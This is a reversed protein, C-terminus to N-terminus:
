EQKSPTEPLSPERQPYKSPIPAIDQGNRKHELISVEKECYLDSEDILASKGKRPIRIRGRRVKGAENERSWEDLDGYTPEISFPGSSLDPFCDVHVGLGRHKLSLRLSDGPQMDYKEPILGLLIYKSRLKGHEVAVIRIQFHDWPNQLWVIGDLETRAAYPHASEVIGRVVVGEDAYVGTTIAIAIALLAWLRPTSM